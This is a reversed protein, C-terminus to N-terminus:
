TMGNPRTRYTENYYLSKTIMLANKDGDSERYGVIIVLYCQHKLIKLNM